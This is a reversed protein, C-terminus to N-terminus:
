AKRSECHSAIDMVQCLVRKLLEDLFVVQYQCFTLSNRYRTVGYDENSVDDAGTKAGHHPCQLASAGSYSSAAVVSFSFSMASALTSQM